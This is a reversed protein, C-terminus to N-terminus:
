RQEEQGANKMEQAHIAGSLPYVTEVIPPVACVAILLIIFLSGWRLWNRGTWKGAFVVHRIGYLLIFACVGLISVILSHQHAIQEKQHEWLWALFVSM